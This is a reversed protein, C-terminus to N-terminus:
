CPTRSKLLSHAVKALSQCTIPSSKREPFFGIDIDPFFGIDIDPFSGIDIGIVSAFSSFIM